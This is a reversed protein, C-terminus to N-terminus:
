NEIQAFLSYERDAKKMIASATMWGGLAAMIVIFLAAMVLVENGKKKGKGGFCVKAIRSFAGPMERSVNIINRAMAFTNYGAVLGSSVTRQKWFSIASHLWIIVGSPIVAFAVLVYLLDSSLQILDFLEINEYLYPIAPYLGITALLLICGYVMTFGAIAMVYGSITLMRIHGGIEKSESWIAGVSRANWWSIAFNLVLLLIFWISM